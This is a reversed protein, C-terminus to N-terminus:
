NLVPPEPIKENPYWYQRHCNECAHEITEGVEFVKDADHAEAAKVALMAADHLAGARMNWAGRDNNILAEMESPELEIGPTESKEHPRAVHRGPIKLLNSAEALTLAGQRVKEWEEDNKPRTEIIGKHSVETTVSLWVVDASTDVVAQMLDKVTAEAVYVPTTEAAPVADAAPTEAKTEQPQRCAVVLAIAFLCSLAKLSTPIRYSM